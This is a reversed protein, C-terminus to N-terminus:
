QKVFPTAKVKDNDQILLYYYGTALDTIDIENRNQGALVNFQENFIEQGMVNVIRTTMVKSENSDFTFDIREVAPNPFMNFGELELENDIGTPLLPLEILNGGIRLAAWLGFGAGSNNVSPDVFGSALVTVASDALSTLNVDYRFLTTGGTSDTVSLDYDTAALELYGTSNTEGYSMNDVITGAGVQTEVVDVAPADTAGHFVIVDCEGANAAVERADAIVELSFPVNPTYTGGSLNVIGSAIVIYTKASELLFTQRFLANATDTSTPLAISVDFFQGAPADIFPSATRFKFNDILPNPGANLWVDVEDADTAACNHIVQLRAPTVNKSAIPIVAGNPLVAILGFPETGVASAPDLYGTALVIAASDALGSVNLDFEAAVVGAQTRVQVDFDAAPLDAYGGLDDGFSLDPALEGAPIQVEYIDVMPADYSGHIINVSIEGSGQNTAEEQGGYARLDFATAGTEALGGSAVVVFQGNAPLNFTKRFIAGTTDTSTPAAIVLDFDVGAPADIYPSATKYDFDNILLTNNLWVDVTAAAPDPCNHIAQVRATQALSITSIASFFAILTFLKTRM